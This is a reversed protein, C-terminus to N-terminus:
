NKSKSNVKKFMKRAGDAFQEATPLFDFLTSLREKKNIYENIKVIPIDQYDSLYREKDFHVRVYGGFVSEHWYVKRGTYESLLENTIM